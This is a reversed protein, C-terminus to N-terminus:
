SHKLARTQWTRENPASEPQFQAPDSEPLFPMPATFVTLAKKGGFFPKRPEASSSGFFPKVPAGRQDGFFPKKTPNRSTM